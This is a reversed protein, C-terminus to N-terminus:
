QMITFYNLLIFIPHHHIICHFWLYNQIFIIKIMKGESNNPNNFEQEFLTSKYYDNTSTCNSVKKIFDAILTNSSRDSWLFKNTM